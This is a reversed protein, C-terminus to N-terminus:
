FNGFFIQKPSHKKEKVLACKYVSAKLIIALVIGPLINFTLNFSSFHIILSYGTKPKKKKKLESGAAWYLKVKYSFYFLPGLVIKNKQM